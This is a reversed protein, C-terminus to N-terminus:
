LVINIIKGPVVIIKKPKLNNLISKTKEFSLVADEIEKNSLDLPLNITFKTKGNFSVPYLKETEVLYKENYEPYVQDVISEKHGLQSWLEEAFHPAFPSILILLEKLIERNNCGISSLENVCIMFSSICTNLSLKEIDKTIKKITKHLSKLSERSPEEESVNFLGDKFFLSWFKKLFSHVGSIGRTDWPKSQEIPGLFMEYMRLTDAGYQDCIEDPNVVNFKSKSMKEQERVCYFSDNELKFTSNKFDSDELKLLNYDVKNDDKVYKIDIRVKDVENDSILNSSIYKNSGSERFIFASNGLIM